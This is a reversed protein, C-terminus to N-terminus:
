KYESKEIYEIVQKYTDFDVSLETINRRYIQEQEYFHCILDNLQIAMDSNGESETRFFAEMAEYKKVITKNKQKRTPNMTKRMSQSMIVAQM